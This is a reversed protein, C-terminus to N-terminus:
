WLSLSTMARRSSSIGSITDKSSCIWMAEPVQKWYIMKYCIKMKNMMLLSIFLTWSWVDLLANYILRRKRLAISVKWNETLYQVHFSGNGQCDTFVDWKDMINIYHYLYHIHLQFYDSQGILIFVQWQIPSRFIFSLSEEM